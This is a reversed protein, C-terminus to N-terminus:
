LGVLRDYVSRAFDVDTSGALIARGDDFLTLELADGSPSRLTALPGRLMRERITFRGHSELKQAILRLDLAPAAERALTGSMSAGAGHGRRAARPTIQVAGRGCLVVAEDQDRGELWEFARQGCCRCSPDPTSGAGISIFRGSGLDASWLGRAALDERGALVRLAQAAAFAATMTVIPGFVGATDCTPLAGPAPPNPHVCRLCPRERLVALSRGEMGVAAAHIFPVGDRVALDNLLYRAPMNDLGDVIAHAGRALAEVNGADLHEVCAHIRVQSDIERLRRRAAEAKPVADRADRECFLSQRQLNSWEVIDRDVLTLTGVGARVLLEAETSGLAGCGVVVAHSARLREQGERGLWTLREQREHRSAPESV